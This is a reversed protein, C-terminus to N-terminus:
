ISIIEGKRYIFNIGIADSASSPAKLVPLKLERKIKNSKRQENERVTPNVKGCYDEILYKRSTRM